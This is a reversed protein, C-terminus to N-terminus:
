ACNAWTGNIHFKDDQYYISLDLYCVCDTCHGNCPQKYEQLAKTPVTVPLQVIGLTSPIKGNLSVSKASCTNIWLSLLMPAIGKLFTSAFANYGPSFSPCLITDAHAVDVLKDYHMRELLEACIPFVINGLEQTILVNIHNSYELYERKSSSDNKRLVFSTGKNQRLMEIGGPGLVVLTNHGNTCYTPLLVFTTYEPHMEMRQKIADVIHPTGIMEPFIIIGYQKPFITDFTALVKDTIDSENELGDVLIAEGGADNISHTKLRAADTVPSMAIKLLLGNDTEQLLGKDNWFYMAIEFPSADEKRILHYNQFRSNFTYERYRESKATNWFPQFHPYISIGTEEHNNNLPALLDIIKRRQWNSFFM